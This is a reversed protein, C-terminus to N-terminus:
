YLQFGMIIEKFISNASAVELKENKEREKEKKLWQM